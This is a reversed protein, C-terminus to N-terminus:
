RTPTVTVQEHVGAAELQVDIGNAAVSAVVPKRGESFGPARGVLTIEGAGPSVVSFKGAADTTTQHEVGSTARVSVSAGGVVLGSADRVVGSIVPAAPVSTQGAARAHAVGAPFISGAVILLIAVRNM